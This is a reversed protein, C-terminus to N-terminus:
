ISADQGRSFNIVKNYLKELDRVDRKCHDLIYSLSKKDGQLARIWYNADVHNKETEGLLTRCAVEMRNSNLCFKHKIIFYVDDHFQQGYIPFDLNHALARTRVFPYDFRKGYFTIIRDYESLDKICQAIVGRDLDKLLEDRTITRHKIEDKNQTKICYCFCIGYNAKLNSTEIDFFGVKQQLPNEQIYCNYHELYSHSHKCKHTSLWNIEKKKLRTVPALPM